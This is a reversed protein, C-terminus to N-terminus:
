SGSASEAVKKVNDDANRDILKNYPDIGVQLPRKTVVVDISTSSETIRRKEMFLTEDDEGFVGIDIWDDIETETEVGQGDARMKKAEVQLTVQYTGDGLATYSASGVKNAYLTIAQFMDEILYDLDPPVVEHIYELFERSNTYPPQQFRKDRVFRALAQNLADEGIYDRLAYMVMSGKNYHIYKQNEVYMLPLEQIMEESRGALYGDLEYRLFRRMKEPGYEQEMVMLASYESLSESLLTAGQVDGGVVQHAWWQHAVEHATTNFVYDVGEGDEVRAIFGAAESYPITNAFSQAFSAYRPFEIIRLQRHQYPGFNRTFYDLSKKVADIMRDVNYDHRRDYYIEIAVDNWRDRRVEYDASLYSFFKLIPADMKYHFYHRGGEEWERQLYGPAIAIQDARTSITTEYNIWDADSAVYSNRRAALDSLSHMRPAPELAYDGRVGPDILQLGTDYGIVPFYHGSGFFTGNHVIATDPAHNVFGRHSVTLDFTLDITEGPGIPDVLEYIHYGVEGDEVLEYDRGLDMSNRHVEPDLSVYVADITADTKNELRYTGRIEVRREDPFIDVDAYVDTVRPQANDRYHQYRREYDARLKNLREEPLYPNLVNTNYFIYAGSAVFGVLSVAGLIPVARRFRRRAVALRSAVSSETGRVILLACLAVLIGVAFSWYLKFWVYREVFHGYGNMDSYPMGMSGPFRLLNHELGILPLGARSVIFLVMLLYGLFKNNVLVQLFFALIALLVFPWALVLLGRLYLGLRLDFFGQSIQYGITSVAGVSLFVAVVLVLTLLKAALFVGNAVPLAGYVEVMGLSREKWALEGSYVILVILLFLGMTSQISQLMLYTVPYVDTGRFEGANSVFFLVFAVALMLLIIFPISRLVTATELGTQRLVQRAITGAAFSRPKSSVKSQQAPAPRVRPATVRARKRSWWRGATSRSYSFRAYSLALFLFGLGLWVLRNSLLGGALPPLSTNYEAVTWYRAANQMAAIGLPEILSGLWIQDFSRALIEAEDQLIVFVVVCIYSALLSRSWLAVAFFIAGMVLLNPLVVVLLGYLFPTLSFPAIRGADQWPVHDGAVIGLTAIVLLAFSVVMSGAFRGTLYDFKEIPKSFFLMHTGLRFDRLVSSAVFATIVFLGLVTVAAMMRLIVIPANHNVLGPLGDFKAGMGTSAFLLAMLFLALGTIYFLPQRLHYRVEFSFIEKWV